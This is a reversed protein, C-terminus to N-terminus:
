NEVNGGKLLQTVRESLESVSPYNYVDGLKIEPFLEERLRRLLRIATM